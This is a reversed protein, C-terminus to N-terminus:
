KAHLLLKAQAVLKNLDKLQIKEKISLERIDSKLLEKVLVIGADMLQRRIELPANLVTLPYLEEDTIWSRLDKGEPYNWCTLLINKGKAYRIAHDSLKTNCILWANDFKSGGRNLDDFAAWVQLAEQLGTFRHPNKHHKCEVFYKKWEKEAIIDIQHEVLEGKLIINWQTMYGHHDLLHQVYKEFEDGEAFKSIAERAGYKLASAKEVKDLKKLVLKLIEKTTIGDYVAKEVEAAIRAAHKESVGSHLCTQYIKEKSFEQREGSAKIVYTM